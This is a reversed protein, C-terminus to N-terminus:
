GYDHGAGRVWVWGDGSETIRDPAGPTIGAPALGAMDEYVDNVALLIMAGHGDVQATSHWLVAVGSV